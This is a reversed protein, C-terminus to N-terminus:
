FAGQNRTAAAPRVPQPVWPVVRPGAWDAPTGPERLAENFARLRWNRKVMVTRCIPVTWTAGLQLTVHAM